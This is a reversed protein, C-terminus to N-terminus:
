RMIGTLNIGLLLVYIYNKETHYGQLPFASINEIGFKSTGKFTNSLINVLRTKFMSLPIDEPVVVDFFPKIGM